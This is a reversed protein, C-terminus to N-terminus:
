DALPPSIPEKLNPLTLVGRRGRLDIAISGNPTRTEIIMRKNQVRIVQYNPGGTYLFKIASYDQFQYGNNNYKNIFNYMALDRPRVADGSAGVIVEWIAPSRGPNVRNFYAAHLDGELFVVNKIVNAEIFGLIEDREQRYATMYEHPNCYQQMWNYTSVILKFKAKSNMLVRKLWTKQARGLATRVVSYFSPDDAPAFFPCLTPFEQCLQQQTRSPPLLPCIYLSDAQQDRYQRLDLIIVELDTGVRFNHFQRSIPDVGPVAPYYFPFHANHTYFAEIGLRGLKKM